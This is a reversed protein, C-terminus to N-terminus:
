SGRRIRVGHKAALTQIVRLSVGALEAVRTLSGGARRLARELYQREFAESSLRRAEPLHRVGTATEFISDGTEPLVSGEPHAALRAITNKLERVNGPWEYSQLPIMAEPPLTAGLERAFRSALVAIDDGRERLPPLRVRGVALRYYLDQRFRGARVEETLNRNTAAVVRLDHRNEDTGGIRRSRKRELVGLLMPQIELPLEGIEDFFLTGGEAQELAGGHAQDAGTFAGREHGFLQAMALAPVLAGCDFVVFPGSSRASAAHLAEAAVEKGTGTEGELLVPADSSALAELQAAIARMKISRAVLGHFDGAKGLPITRRARLAHVVLTTSGLTIRMGDILPAREIPQAGCFVGNTSGLDRIVYARPTAVVEAHRASVTEDHLVLGCADASGIVLSDASLAVKQGRDPGAVVKLEAGDCEFTPRDGELLITSLVKVM